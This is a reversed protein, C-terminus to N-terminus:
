KKNNLLHNQYQNIQKVKFVKDVRNILAASAKFDQSDKIVLITNKGRNKAEDILPVYDGDGSSLILTEIDKRECVVKMADVILFSDVNDLHGSLYTRFGNNELSAVIHRDYEKKYYEMQNCSIYINKIITKYNNIINNMDRFDFPFVNNGDIFLAALSNKFSFNLSEAM